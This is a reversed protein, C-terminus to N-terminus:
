ASTSQVKFREYVDAHEEFWDRSHLLGERLSFKPIYKLVSSSHKMDGVWTTTDFSRGPYTNFIVRSDSDTIALVINAIDELTHQVGTGVNFISGSLDRRKGALVFARVVDDIYIFDRASKADALTIDENRLAQLIVTPILRGPEEFPGYVSFLRLTTTYVKEQLAYYRALMTQVAKGIAYFSNPDILSDERMPVNKTGYESSSGALILAEVNYHHSAELLAISGFLATSMIDDVKTQYSYAGHVALHFVIEPHVAEFVSNVVAAERLDAYHLRIRSAIDELRWLNSSGRVVGHVEHGTLVLHRALNSGVFGSIGTILCKM